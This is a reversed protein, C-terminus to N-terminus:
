DRSPPIVLHPPLHAPRVRLVTVRRESGTVVKSSLAVGMQFGTEDFNHMDLPEVGYKATTEEVLRFWAGIIEPDEQL